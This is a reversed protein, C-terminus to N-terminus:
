PLVGLKPQAALDAFQRFEDLSSGSSTHDAHQTQGGDDM